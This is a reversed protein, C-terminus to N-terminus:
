RQESTDNQGKLGNFRSNRYDVFNFHEGIHSNKQGSFQLKTFESIQNRGIIKIEYGAYSDFMRLNTLILYARDGYNKHLATFKDDMREEHKDKSLGTEVEIAIKQGAKNEFIIDPERTQFTKVNDTYQKIEEMILGVLLTHELSEPHRPKVYYTHPGSKLGHGKKMVYGHNNLVNQQLISLGKAPFVLRTLDLDARESEKKNQPEKPEKKENMKVLEDPNTTILKHEEPSAIVELEQHENELILIGNGLSASVLFDREAQSLNFTKM